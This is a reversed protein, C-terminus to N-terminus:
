NKPAYERFETALKNYIPKFVEELVIWNYCQRDRIDFWYSNASGYDKISGSVAVQKGFNLIRLSHFLSKWGIYYDKEVEIKKKAKVWSHSAKQSISNRLKAPNIELPFHKPIPSEPLFYAELCHIKHEFLQIGFDIWNYMHININNHCYETGTDAKRNEPIVAIYDYDSDAKNTGYVRSGYPVLLLDEDRLGYTAKFYDISSLQTM